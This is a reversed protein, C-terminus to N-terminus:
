TLDLYFDFYFIWSKSWFSARFENQWGFGGSGVFESSEDFGGHFDILFYFIFEPLNKPLHAQSQLLLSITRIKLSYKGIKRAPQEGAM